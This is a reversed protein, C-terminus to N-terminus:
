QFNIDCSGMGVLQNKFDAMKNLEPLIRSSFTIRIEELLRANELLFKAFKIGYEDFKAIHLIKLSSKFCPPVQKLANDYDFRINTL